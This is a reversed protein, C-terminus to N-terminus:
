EGLGAELGFVADGIVPHLFLVEIVRMVRYLCACPLLLSERLLETPHLHSFIKRNFLVEYRISLSRQNRFYVSSCGSSVTGHALLFASQLLQSRLCDIRARAAVGINSPWGVVNYRSHFQVGLDANVFIDDVRRLPYLLCKSGDLNSCFNARSAAVDDGFECVLMGTGLVVGIECGAQGGVGLLIALLLPMCVVKSRDVVLGASDNASCLERWRLRPQLHSKM